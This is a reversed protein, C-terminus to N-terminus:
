CSIMIKTVKNRSKVGSRQGRHTHGSAYHVHKKYSVCAEQVIRGKEKNNVFMCM